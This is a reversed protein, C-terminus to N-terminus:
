LRILGAWNLLFLSLGVVAIAILATLIWPLWFHAASRAGLLISVNGGQTDSLTIKQGAALLNSDLVYTDSGGAAGVIATDTAQLFNVDNGSTFAM